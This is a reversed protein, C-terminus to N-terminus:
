PPRLLTVVTIAYGTKGLSVVPMTSITGGQGKQRGYLPVAPDSAGAV